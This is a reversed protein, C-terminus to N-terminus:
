ATQDLVVHGDEDCAFDLGARQVSGKGGTEDGHLANESRALRAHNGIRILYLNRHPVVWAKEEVPLLDLAHDAIWDHTAYPRNSCEAKTTTTTNGTHGNNWAHPVALCVAAVLIATRLVRM